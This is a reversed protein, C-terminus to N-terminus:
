LEARTIQEGCQLELQMNFKSRFKTSPSPVMTITSVLMRSTQVDARVVSYARPEERVGVQQVEEPKQQKRAKLLM